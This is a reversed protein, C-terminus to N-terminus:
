KYELKFTYPQLMILMRQLRAPACTLPRDYISVLPKHDTEITIDRRGYIYQHYKKCAHVIFLMEKEIQAYDKDTQTFTKSAYAVPANRQLMVSGCGNQSADCSITIPENPVYFQLIPASMLLEKLENFAKEQPADWHFLNEQRVLERLPETVSSHNPIFRSVYNMVGLFREVGKKNESRQMQKIASVRNEDVQIGKVTIM